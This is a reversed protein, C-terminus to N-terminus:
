EPEGVDDNVHRQWYQNSPDLRVYGGEMAGMRNFNFGAKRQVFLGGGDHWVRGMMLVHLWFISGLVLGDIGIRSLDLIVNRLQHRQTRM